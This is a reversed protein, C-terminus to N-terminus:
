THLKDVCGHWGVFTSLSLTLSMSHELGTGVGLARERLLPVSPKRLRLINRLILCNRRRIRENSEHESLSPVSLDPAKFEPKINSGELHPKYGAAALCVLVDMAGHTLDFTVVNIVHRSTVFVGGTSFPPPFPFLIDSRRSQMGSPTTPAPASHQRPRPSSTSMPTGSPRLARVWNELCFPSAAQFATERAIALRFLRSIVPLMMDRPKVHVRRAHSRDLCGDGFARAHTHVSTYTSLPFGQCVTAKRRPLFIGLARVHEQIPAALSFRFLSVSVNLRFGPPKRVARIVSM